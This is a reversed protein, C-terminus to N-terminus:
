YWYIRMNVYVGINMWVWELKGIGIKWKEFKREENGGYKGQIDHIILSYLIQIVSYKEESYLCVVLWLFGSLVAGLPQSRSYKWM